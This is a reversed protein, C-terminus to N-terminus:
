KIKLDFRKLIVNKRTKANFVENQSETEKQEARKGRHPVEQKIPKQTTIVNKNPVNKGLKQM